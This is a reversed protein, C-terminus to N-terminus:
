STKDVCYYTLNGTVTMAREYAESWPDAVALLTQEKFASMMDSLRQHGADRARDGIEGVLLATDELDTVTDMVNLYEDCLEAESPGTACGALALVVVASALTTLTKKMTNEM